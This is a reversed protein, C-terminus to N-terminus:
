AAARPSPARTNITTVSGNNKKRTKGDRPKQADQPPVYVPQREGFLLDLLTRRREPQQQAQASSTLFATAGLTLALGLMLFRALPGRPSKM